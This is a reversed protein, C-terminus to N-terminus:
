KFANHVHVYTKLKVHKFFMQLCNSLSQEFIGKGTVLLNINIYILGIPYMAYPSWHDIM